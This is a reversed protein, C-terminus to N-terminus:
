SRQNNNILISNKCNYIRLSIFFNFVILLVLYIINLNYNLIKCSIPSIIEFLDPYWNLMFRSTPNLDIFLIEFLNNGKLYYITISIISLYFFIITAIYSKVTGLLFSYTCVISCFLLLYLFFVIICFLAKRLDVEKNLLTIRTIVYIVSAEFCYVMLSLQKKIIFINKNDMRTLIYIMVINSNKAYFDILPISLLFILLLGDLNTLSIEFFNSEGILAEHIFSINNLEIPTIMTYNFIVALSLSTFFVICLRKINIFLINNLM